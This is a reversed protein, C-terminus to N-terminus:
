VYPPQYRAGDLSVELYSYIFVIFIRLLMCFYIFLFTIRELVVLVM